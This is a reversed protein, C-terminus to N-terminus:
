DGKKNEPYTEYPKRYNGNKRNRYILFISDTTCKLDVYEINNEELFKNIDDDTFQYHGFRKVKILILGEEELKM